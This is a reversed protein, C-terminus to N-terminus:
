SEIRVKPTPLIFRGGRRAYEAQERRVEDAFNWVLLLCYAPQEEYLREPPVIPVHAGPMVRGQKLPNKDCVFDLDAAGLGAANLLVTGKAAAGYAAVRQGEARKGRIM